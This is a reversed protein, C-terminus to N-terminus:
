KESKGGTKPNVLFVIDGMTILQDNLCEKFFKELANM